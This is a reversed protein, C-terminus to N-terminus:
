VCAEVNDISLVRSINRGRDSKIRSLLKLNVAFTLPLIYRTGADGSGASMCLRGESVGGDSHRGPQLQRARSLPWERWKRGPGSRSSRM